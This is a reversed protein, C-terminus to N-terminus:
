PKCNGANPNLMLNEQSDLVYWENSFKCFALLLDARM